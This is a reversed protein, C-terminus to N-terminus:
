FTLEKRHLISYMNSKYWTIAFSLQDGTEVVVTAGVLQWARWERLTEGEVNSHECRLCKLDIGM